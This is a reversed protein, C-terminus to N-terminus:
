EHCRYNTVRKAFASGEQAILSEEWWGREDYNYEESQVLDGDQRVSTTIKEALLFNDDFRYETSNRLNGSADRREVTMVTDGDGFIYTAEAYLSGDPNFVELRELLGDEGYHYVSAQLPEQEDTSPGRTYTVEDYNLTDGVYTAERVTVYQEPATRESVTRILRGSDDYEFTTDYAGGDVGEAPEGVETAVTGDSNFTYTVTEILIDTDTSTDYTEIVCPNKPDFQDKYREAQVPETANEAADDGDASEVDADADNSQESGGDDPMCSTLAVVAAILIWTSARLYKM